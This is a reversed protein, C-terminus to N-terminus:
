KQVCKFISIIIITCNKKYSTEQGGHRVENTILKVVTTLFAHLKKKKHERVPLISLHNDASVLGNSM